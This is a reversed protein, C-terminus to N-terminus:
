RRAPACVAVLSLGGEGAVLHRRHQQEVAIYDGPTVAIQEEDVVLWGSGDLIVYVDETDDDLHDHLVTQEGPPLDVENVEFGTVDLAEGMRRDFPSAAPHPGEGQEIDAARVIRHGM